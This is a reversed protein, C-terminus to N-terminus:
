IHAGNDITNIRAALSVLSRELQRNAVEFREGITVVKLELNDLRRALDDIMSATRREANELERELNYLHALPDVPQPVSARYTTMDVPQYQNYALVSM